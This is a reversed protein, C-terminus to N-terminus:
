DIIKIATRVIYSIQSAHLVGNNQSFKLDPNAFARCKRKNLKM